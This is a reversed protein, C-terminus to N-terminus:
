KVKKRRRILILGDYIKGIEGMERERDRRCTINQMLEMERMRQQCCDSTYNALTYFKRVTVSLTIQAKTYSVHPRLIYLTNLEDRTTQAQMHYLSDTHDHHFTWDHQQTSDCKEYLKLCVTNTTMLVLSFEYKHWIM